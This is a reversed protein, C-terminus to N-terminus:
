WRTSAHPGGQCRPNRVPIPDDNDFLRRFNMEVLGIDQAEFGTARLGREALFLRQRGDGDGVEYAGAEAMAGIADKDALQAPRFREVQQLREVRTM